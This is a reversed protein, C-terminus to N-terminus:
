RRLATNRVARGPLRIKVDTKETEHKVRSEPVKRVRQTLELSLSMAVSPWDILLDQHRAGDPSWSWINIVRQCDRDQKEPAGGRVLPRNQRKYISSPRALATNRPDSDKPDRSWIKSDWNRSKGKRRRRRSAPDRHVYEVGGGCPHTLETLRGWLLTSRSSFLFCRASCDPEKTTACRGSTAVLIVTQRTM